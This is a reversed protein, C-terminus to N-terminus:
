LRLDAVVLYQLANTLLSPSSVPVKVTYAISLAVFHTCFVAKPISLMFQIQFLLM